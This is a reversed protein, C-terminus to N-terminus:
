TIMETWERWSDDNIIVKHICSDNSPSWPLSDRQCRTHIAGWNLLAVMGFDSEFCHWQAVPKEFSNSLWTRIKISQFDFDVPLLLWITGTRVTTCVDDQTQKATTGWECRRRRLTTSYFFNRATITTSSLSFSPALLPATTAARSQNSASFARSEWWWVNELGHKMERGSVGDANTALM